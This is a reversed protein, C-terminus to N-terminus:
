HIIDYQVNIQELLEYIPSVRAFIFGIAVGLVIACLHAITTLLESVVGYYIIVGASLLGALSISAYLSSKYGQSSIIDSKYIQFWLYTNFSCVCCWVISIGTCGEFLCLVIQFIFLCILLPVWFFRALPASSPFVFCLPISVLVNVSLTMYNILIDTEAGDYSLISAVSAGGQEVLRRSDCESM